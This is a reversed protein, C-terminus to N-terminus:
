REDPEENLTVIDLSNLLETLEDDARQSTIHRLRIQWGAETSTLSHPTIAAQIGPRSHHNENNSCYVAGTKSKEYSEPVTPLDFDVAQPMM